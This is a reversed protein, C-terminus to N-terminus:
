RGGYSARRQVGAGDAVKAAANGITGAPGGRRDERYGRSEDAPANKPDLKVVRRLYDANEEAKDASM